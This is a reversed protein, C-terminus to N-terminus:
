VAVNQAAFIKQLLDETTVVSHSYAIREAAQWGEPIGTSSLTALAGLFADENLKYIDAETENVKNYYCATVGEELIISGAIVRLEGNKNPYSGHFLAQQFIVAEGKKVELPKVYPKLREDTVIRGTPLSGSRYNKFFKHSGPIAFLTGNAMNTETLPCWLIASFHEAENTYNWDQHLLLDDGTKAKALFSESFSAYGNFLRQYSATLIQRMADRIHMNGAQNNALLSYFFNGALAADSGCTRTFLDQLQQLQEETVFPVVVYGQQTFKTNLAPDKFLANM